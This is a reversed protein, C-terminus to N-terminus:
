RAERADAELLRAGRRFAAPSLGGAALPHKLVALLPVPAFGGSVMAAILRLFGGPASTALPEGASDDIDIDWRRLEAAVRRALNRDPTVLAATRGGTELAQRLILAAARGCASSLQLLLLALLLLHCLLCVKSGPARPRASVFSM